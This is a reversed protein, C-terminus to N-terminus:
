AADPFFVLLGGVAGFVLAFFALGTSLNLVVCLIWAVIKMLQKM